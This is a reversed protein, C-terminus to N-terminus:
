PVNVSIKLKWRGLMSWSWWNLWSIYIILVKYISYVVFYIRYVLVSYLILLMIPKHLEKKWVMKIQWHSYNTTLRHTTGLKNRQSSGDIDSFTWSIRNTNWPGTLTGAHIDFYIFYIYIYIGLGLLKEYGKWTVLILWSSVILSPNPFHIPYCEKWRFCFIIGSAKRRQCPLFTRRLCWWFLNGDFSAEYSMVTVYTWLTDDGFFRCLRLSTMSGEEELIEWKRCDITPLKRINCSEFSDWCVLGFNGCDIKVYM